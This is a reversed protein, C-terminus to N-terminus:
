RPVSATENPGRMTARGKCDKQASQAMQRGAHPPSDRPDGAENWPGPMIKLDVISSVAAMLGVVMRMRSDNLFWRGCEAM